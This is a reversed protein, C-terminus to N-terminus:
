GPKASKDTPHRCSYRPARDPQTVLAERIFLKGLTTRLANANNDANEGAFARLAAACTKDFGGKWQLGLSERIFGWRHYNRAVPKAALAREGGMNTDCHFHNWHTPLPLRDHYDFVNAFSLRLCANIRHLAKRDEAVCESNAALIERGGVLRVGGVDIADGYSHNSLKANNSICRCVLTGMSLIADVAMGAANMNHIFAAIGDGVRGVINLTRGTIRNKVVYQKSATDYGVGPCSYEQTKKNYRYDNCTPKKKTSWGGIYEFGVGSVKSVKELGSITPCDFTKDGCRNSTQKGEYPSKISTGYSGPKSKRNMVYDVLANTETEFESELVHGCRPCRDHEREDPYEDDLEYGSDDAEYEYGRAPGRCADCGCGRRTAFGGRGGSFPEPRFILSDM